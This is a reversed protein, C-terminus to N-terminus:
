FPILIPGRYSYASSSRVIRSCNNGFGIPEQYSEVQEFRPRLGIPALRRTLADVRAADSVPAAAGQETFPKSHLPEVCIGKSALTALAKDLILLGASNAGGIVEFRSIHYHFLPALAPWSPNMIEMACALACSVCCPLDLQDLVFRLAGEFITAAPMQRSQPPSQLPASQRRPQRFPRQWRLSPLARIPPSTTM